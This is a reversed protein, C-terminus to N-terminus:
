PKSITCGKGSILIRTGRVEYTANVSSCLLDLKTFLSQHSIDGRFLCNELSENELIIEIGYSVELERIVDTIPADEFLFKTLAPPSQPDPTVVPVPAEVLGTEFTNSENIFTVKQNATLLVGSKVRGTKNTNFDERKSVSVKGSVVSVEVSKNQDSDDVWFSTGLVKTVIEGTYVLFPMEPNRKVDFFAKGSLIVKRTEGTFKAPYEIVTKPALMVSSGDPLSFTINGPTTNVKRIMDKAVVAGGRTLSDQLVPLRKATLWWSFFIFVAAAASWKWVLALRRVKNQNASIQNWIKNELVKEEMDSLPPIDEGLMAFWQEVLEKEKGTCNGNRYRTLLLHLNQKSM